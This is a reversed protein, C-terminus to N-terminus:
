KYTIRTVFFEWKDGKPRVRFYTRSINKTKRKELRARKKELAALLSITKNAYFHFIIGNGTNIGNRKFLKIDAKKRGGGAWTFYHQKKLNEGTNHVVRTAPTRTLNSLVVIRKDKLLGLSIGYQELQAAYSDITGEDGFRIFWRQVFNGDGGGGGLPRGGTGERSGIRGRNVDATAAQQPVQQAANESLEVVNELTEELEAEDDTDVVSPDETPDEPSEVKLTENPRGDEYGGLQLLTVDIDEDTGAPRSALWLAFVWLTLLTMGIVMAIIFASVLDYRTEKLVPSKAPSRPGKLRSVQAM